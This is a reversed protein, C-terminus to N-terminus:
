ARSPRSVIDVTGSAVEPFRVELLDFAEQSEAGPLSFDTSYSGGLHLRPEHLRDAGRDLNRADAVSPSLRLACSMWDDMEEVQNTHDRHIPHM